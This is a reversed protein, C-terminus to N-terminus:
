VRRNTNINILTIVSGAIILGRNGKIGGLNVLSDNLVKDLMALVEGYEIFGDHNTDIATIFEDVELHSLTKVSGM